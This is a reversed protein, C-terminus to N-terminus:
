LRFCARDLCEDCVPSLALRMMASVLTGSVCGQWKSVGMWFVDGIRGEWGSYMGILLGVDMFDGFDKAVWDVCM